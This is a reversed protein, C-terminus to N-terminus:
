LLVRNYKVKARSSDGLLGVRLHDVYYLGTIIGSGWAVPTITRAGLFKLRNTAHPAQYQMVM